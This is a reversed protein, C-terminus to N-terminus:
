ALAATEDREISSEPRDRARPGRLTGDRPLHGVLVWWVFAV